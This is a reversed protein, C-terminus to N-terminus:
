TLLWWALGIGAAPVAIKEIAVTLEEIPESPPKVAKAQAVQRQVELYKNAWGWSDLQTEAGIPQYAQFPWGINLAAQAAPIMVASKDVGTFKNIDDQIRLQEEALKLPSREFEEGVKKYHRGVDEVVGKGFSEVKKGIKEIEDWWGM